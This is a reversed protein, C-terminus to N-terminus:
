CTASTQLIFQSLLYFLISSTRAIQFSCVLLMKFIDSFLCGYGINCWIWGCLLTVNVVMFVLNCLINSAAYCFLCVVFSFKFMMVNGYFTNYNKFFYRFGSCAAEFNCIGSGISCDLCSSM